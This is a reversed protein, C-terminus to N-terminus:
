IIIGYNTYHEELFEGVLRYVAALLSSLLEDTM